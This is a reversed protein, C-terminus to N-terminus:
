RTPRTSGRGLTSSYSVIGPGLRLCGAQGSWCKWPHRRPKGMSSCFPQACCSTSLATAHAQLGQNRNSQSFFETCTCILPGKHCFASAPARHGLWICMHGRCCGQDLVRTHGTVRMTNAHNWSHDSCKPAVSGAKIPAAGNADGTTRRACPHACYCQTAPTKPCVQLQVLRAPVMCCRRLM